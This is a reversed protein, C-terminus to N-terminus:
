CEGLLFKIIIMDLKNSVFLGWQVVDNFAPGSSTCLCAVLTQCHESYLTVVLVKVSYDSLFWYFCSYFCTVHFLKYPQWDICNNILTNKM